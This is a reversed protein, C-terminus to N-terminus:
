GTLRSPMLTDGSCRTPPAEAVAVISNISEAGSPPAVIVRSLPLVEITLIGACTVMGSPPKVAVNATEVRATVTGVETAILAVYSPTVEDVYKRTV